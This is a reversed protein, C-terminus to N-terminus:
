GIAAAAQITLVVGLVLAGLATAAPIIAGFRRIAPHAHWDRGDMRRRVLVVSASIAGLVIAMGAGFALVLVLGFALRDLTIGLLLVVLASGSPVLGGLLGLAALSRSSLNTPRGHAHPHEHHHHTHGHGHHQAESASGSRHSRVLRALLVAGLCIVLVGAALSMWEVVRQPVLADTAIFTIAGLVLVGITHAAAVTAGLGIAQPLTGRTGILYAAVLTKGHGPSVAHAAGLGLSILIAVVATLPTLAGGVLSALVDDAPQERPISETSVPATASPQTAGAAFSFAASRVDMPADLGGEPYRRLEDTASTAPADSATLAMGDGAVVVIERWGLQDVFTADAYTGDSAGRPITAELDLELRLTRLGNQGIPFSLEASVPRLDVSDGGLTLELGGLITPVMEAVYDDCEPDSLTGDEDVDLRALETFAPIEAMDVVHRVDVRDAQVTLASYHNITFNGLPHAAAVAPIALASGIMASVLVLRRMMRIM